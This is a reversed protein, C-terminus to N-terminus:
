KTKQKWQYSIYGTSATVKLTQLDQFLNPEDCFWLSGFFFAKNNLNQLTFARPLTKPGGQKPFVEFSALIPIVNSVTTSSPITMTLRFNNTSSPTSPEFMLSIESLNKAGTHDDAFPLMLELMGSMYSLSYPPNAFDVGLNGEYIVANSGKFKNINKKM